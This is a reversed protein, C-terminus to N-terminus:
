TRALRMARSRRRKGDHQIFKDCADPRCGRRHGTILIYDCTMQSINKDSDAVGYRGAYGCNVCYKRKINNIEGLTLRGWPKEITNM